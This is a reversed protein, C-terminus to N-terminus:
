LKKNSIWSPETPCGNQNDPLHKTWVCFFSLEACLLGLPFARGARSYYVTNFFYQLYECLSNEWLSCTVRLFCDIYLPFPKDTNIWVICSHMSFINGGSSFCHHATFSTFKEYSWEHSNKQNKSRYCRRDFSFLLSFVWLGVTSRSNKNRQSRPCTLDEGPLLSRDSSDCFQLASRHKLVTPLLPEGSSLKTPKFTSWNHPSLSPGHHYSCQHTQYKHSVPFIFLGWSNFIFLGIPDPM